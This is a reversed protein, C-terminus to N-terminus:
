NQLPFDNLNGENTKCEVETASFKFCTGNSDRFVMGDAKSPEPYKVIVKKEPVIVFQAIIGIAIGLLIYLFNIHQLIM